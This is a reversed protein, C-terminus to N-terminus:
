QEGGPAARDALYSRLMMVNDQDLFCQQTVVWTHRARCHGPSELELLIGGAMRSLVLRQNVNIQLELPHKRIDPAKFEAPMIEQLRALPKEKM